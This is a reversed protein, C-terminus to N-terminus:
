GRRRLMAVVGMSLLALTAPEPIIIEDLFSYGPPPPLAGGGPGHPDGIQILYGDGSGLIATDTILVGVTFGGGSPEVDIPSVPLFSPGAFAPIAGGIGWFKIVPPLAGPVGVWELDHTEIFGPGPTPFMGVPLGFDYTVWYEAGPVITSTSIDVILPGAMPAVPVGPGTFVDPPSLFPASTEHVIPDGTLVAFVPQVCVGAGLVFVTWALLRVQLSAKTM